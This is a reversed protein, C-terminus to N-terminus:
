RMLVEYFGDVFILGKSLMETASLTEGGVHKRVDVGVDGTDAHNILSM